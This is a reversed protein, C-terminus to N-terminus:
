IVGAPVATQADTGATKQMFQIIELLQRIDVRVLKKCKPCKVEIQCGDEAVLDFLRANCDNCHYTSKIMNVAGSEQSLCDDEFKHEM